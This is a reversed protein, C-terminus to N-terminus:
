IDSQGILKDSERVLCRISRSVKAQPISASSSRQTAQM